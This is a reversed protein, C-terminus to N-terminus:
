RGLKRKISRIQKKTERLSTEKEEIEDEYESESTPDTMSLEYLENLREQLFDRKNELNSLETELQEREESSLESVESEEPVEELVEMPAEVETDSTMEPIVPMKSEVNEIPIKRNALINLIQDNKTSITALTSAIRSLMVKLESVEKLINDLKTNIESESKKSINEKLEKAADEIKSIVSYLDDSMLFMGWLSSGSKKM